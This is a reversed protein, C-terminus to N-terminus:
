ATYSYAQTDHPSMCACMRIQQLDGATHTERQREGVAHMNVHTEGQREGVAHMNVHTEGQREGVAHVNM